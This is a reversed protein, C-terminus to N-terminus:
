LAGGASQARAMARIVLDLATAPDLCARGAALRRAPPTSRTPM